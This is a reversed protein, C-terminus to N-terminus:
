LGIWCYRASNSALPFVWNGGPSRVFYRILELIDYTRSEDRFGSECRPDPKRLVCCAVPLGRHSTYRQIVHSVVIAAYPPLKDSPPLIRFIRAGNVGHSPCCSFRSGNVFSILSRGLLIRELGRSTGNPTM